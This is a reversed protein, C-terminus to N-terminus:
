EKPVVPCRVGTGGFLFSVGLSIGYYADTRNPNASYSFGDLYDTFAVRMTAEANVAIRPSVMWRVGAGLPVVPLVRPLAQLSDRTLGDQINAKVTSAPDVRSWDRHINFFSVGAGIMVYPTLTHYSEKGNDGYPNFQVMGTVETVPTSFSFNREQKWSPSAFRSEDAHMSGFTLNARWSFYPNFPKALWVSAMPRAFKFSGFPSEILDGQYLLTGLNIGAELNYRSQQAKTEPISICTVVILFVIRVISKM